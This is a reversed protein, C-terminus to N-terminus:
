SINRRMAFRRTSMSSFARAAARASSPVLVSFSVTLSASRPEADRVELVCLQYGGLLNQGIAAYAGAQSLSAGIRIPAQAEAVPAVAWALAAGLTVALVRKAHSM